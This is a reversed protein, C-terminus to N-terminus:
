ADAAQRQNLAHMAFVDAPTRAADRRKKHGGGDDVHDRAVNGDLKAEFARVDADHTGAGSAQMGDAQRRAHDFVAVAVHHDRAAGLCRSRRQAHAAKGCGACKRRAIVVWFGRGAGPVFVAVTKHQALAAAHQHEFLVFVGFCATGLNVSFDDTKAHRAVSEVHGRGVHVARAAGHRHGQFIRADVGILDIIEVRVACGRRQAVQVFGVGDLGSEASVGFVLQHDARGLGHGAVQQAARATNLRHERHQRQM